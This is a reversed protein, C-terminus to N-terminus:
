SGFVSVRRGTSSFNVSRVNHTHARFVQVTGSNITPQWLSVLRDKSVTALLDEKPSWDVGMIEESHPEFRVCRKEKNNESLLQCITVSKDTSSAAIRGEEPSFALGTIGSKHSKLHNVLIPSEM